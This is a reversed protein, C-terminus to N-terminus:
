YKWLARGGVVPKDRTLVRLVNTVASVWRGEKNKCKTKCKTRTRGYWGDLKWLGCFNDDEDENEDEYDFKKKKGTGAEKSL